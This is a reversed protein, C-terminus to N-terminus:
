RSILSGSTPLGDVTMRRDHLHQLLARSTRQQRFSFPPVRPLASQEAILRRMPREPLRAEVVEVYKGRLFSDFLQPVHM